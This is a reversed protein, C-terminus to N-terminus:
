GGQLPYVDREVDLEKFDSFGLEVSSSATAIMYDDRFAQIELRVDTVRQGYFWIEVSGCTQGWDGGIQGSAHMQGAPSPVQVNRFELDKLWSALLAEGTMKVYAEKLCWHAYFHRLKARIEDQPTGRTPPVFGAIDRIERDSFVMEYVNAWAEFGTKMVTTYDKEWNMKVIDVGLKVSEGPCGVLAVLSGHHSVNFELREANPAPPKYCPKKHPGESVVADSWSVQCTNAIARHKLLNSGLSLKADSPRYFRLARAREADTLFALARHAATGTAWHATSEASQIERDPAPWLGQVDIIWRFVEREEMREVNM